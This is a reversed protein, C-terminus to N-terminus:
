KNKRDVTDIGDQRARSLESAFFWRLYGVMSCAGVFWAAIGLVVLVAAILDPPQLLVAAAVAAAFFALGLLM